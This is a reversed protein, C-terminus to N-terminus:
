TPDLLGRVGFASIARAAAALGVPLALQLAEDDVRRLQGLRGMMGGALSDGAGTPDVVENVPAAPYHRPGSGTVLTAGDEGLKLVVARLRGRGLLEAAAQEAGRPHPWLQELEARNAFLVDAAGVLQRLRDPDGSIFDRMTDLGILEAAQCQSVVGLQAEPRMSGLFLLQSRQAGAPVVPQWNAYVGFGQEEQAPVAEGAAHVAHWRYSEGPLRALGALDVGPRQLLQVLPEGDDGIAAVPRVPCYRAAALTFYLASGGPV